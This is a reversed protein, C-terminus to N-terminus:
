TVLDSYIRNVVQWKMDWRFKEFTRNRAAQGLKQAEHPSLGLHVLGAHIDNIVQAPNKVDIIVASQSDVMEGPGGWKLTLIPLGLTMAELLASGGSDRLGPFVFASTECYFQKLTDRPVAGTFTINTSLNLREVYSKWFDLAAGNGVVKLHWEFPLGMALAEFILPMVRTPACNGAFLMQFVDGKKPASYPINLDEERLANPSMVVCKEHFEDALFNQTTQNSVLISSARRLSATVWPMKSNIRNVFARFREANRAPGLYQDFGKPTSEGGAIPGWVSPIGLKSCSFPIRFTHFTTQHVLEFPQDAHLKLALKLAMRQWWCKRLWAGAGPPFRSLWRIWPPADLCHLEIGYESTYRELVPMAKSTTILTVQHSQSAERAWGWGLWHEGDGEPDCAYAVMLIKSRKM